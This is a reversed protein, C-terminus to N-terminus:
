TKGKSTFQDYLSQAQIRARSRQQLANEGEAPVEAQEIVFRYRLELPEGKKLSKKFFYGFRGYARTSVEEVPNAPANLQLASYWRDGIPFLMRCWKLQDGKSVGEPETLYSTEKQRTYVENSARFHVGSHQLDGALRLDREPTLAFAADIQTRKPAPRSIVLTRKERVLLDSGNTARGARWLVDAIITAQNDAAAAKQLGAVEM